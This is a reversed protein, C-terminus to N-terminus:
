QLYFFQIRTLFITEVYKSKLEGPELECFTEEFESFKLFIWIKGLLIYKKLFNWLYEVNASAKQSM